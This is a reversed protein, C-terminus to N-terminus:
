DRVKRDGCMRRSGETSCRVMATQARMGTSAMGCPPPGQKWSGSPEIPGGPKQSIIPEYRFFILLDSGALGFAISMHTARAGALHRWEAARAKRASANSGGRRAHEALSARRRVRVCRAGGARPASGAGRCRQPAM